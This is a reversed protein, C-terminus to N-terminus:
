TEPQSETQEQSHAEATRHGFFETRVFPVLKRYLQWGALATKAFHLWKHRRRGSGQGEPHVLALLPQVVGLVDMKRRVRQGYIQLNRVELGLMQRYVESEAALAKKKVELDTM